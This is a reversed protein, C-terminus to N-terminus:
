TALIGQLFMISQFCDTPRMCLLRCVVRLVINTSRLYFIMKRQDVLLSVPMTGCYFLLPKASERWCANFIKRFCINWAVDLKHKDFSSMRWIECAYLLIPLCYTKALFVTLMKDRGELVSMINNFCGFFKILAASPDVCNTRSNIFVGLYKVTDMYPVSAGNLQVVFHSPSRGGFVTTQSKSSNFRIGFRNGYDSCIDVL